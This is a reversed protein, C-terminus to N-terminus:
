RVKVKFTITGSSQGKLPETFEWKLLESGSRNDETSFNVPLDTQMSDAVFELRPTLSDMVLVEEIKLDGINRITITFTIVDGPRATTRDANKEIRLNGRKDLSFSGVVEGSSTKAYVEGLSVDTGSVVPYQGHQAIEVVTLLEGSLAKETTRNQSGRQKQVSEYTNMTEATVGQRQNQSTGAQWQANELGSGRAKTKVRGTTALALNAKPGSGQKLGDNVAQTTTNIPGNVLRRESTVTQNSISGFRPSFIAVRNSKRIRRAGAADKFEAITDETEVGSSNEGLYHDTVERNGGDWLYEDPYKKSLLYPDDCVPGSSFPDIQGAPCDLGEIRPDHATRVIGKETGRGGHTQPEPAQETPIGSNFDIAPAAALEEPQVVRGGMRVLAVPRGYVDAQSLLHRTLEIPRPPLHLEGSPLSEPVAIDPQELYIVKTILSGSVAKEIEEETFVIPIPFEAAKGQPPHLRDVLEISPYLEEGPFEPMGAIKFRYLPGVLFGAQGPATQQAIANGPGFFTVEGTSPLIIRLPQYYGGCRDRMAAMEGAVGPPMTPQWLPYRGNPRPAQAFANQFGISLLLCISGIIRSNESFVM